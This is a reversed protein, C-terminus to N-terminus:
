HCQAAVEEGRRKARDAGPQRLFGLVFEVLGPALHDPGQGIPELGIEEHIALAPYDVPSGGVDDM